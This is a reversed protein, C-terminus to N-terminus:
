PHVERPRAPAGSGVETGRRDSGARRDAGTRAEPRAEHHGGCCGGVGAPSGAEAGPEGSGEPGAVLSALRAAITEAGPPRALGQFGARRAALAEPDRCAARVREVLLTSDFATERVIEAVGADALPRANWYQHDGPAIALPVMVAPVGFLVLEAVTGAGARCVMLDTEEYLKAMDQEYARVEISAPAGAARHAELCSEHDRKGTVHVFRLGDMAALERYAACAAQNLVRAGLSGGVMSVQVRCEPREARRIAAREPDFRFRLPAGTWEVRSPDPFSAATGEFGAFVGRALRALLRNARGARSNPEVLWVPISLLRAALVVPPSVFGGLALVAAPRRASLARRAVAVGRVLTWPLRVLNRAYLRLAPVTVVEHGRDRYTAVEVGDPSAFCLFRWSPDRQVLAEAVAMLPYADGGSGGGVLALVRERGEVGPKM